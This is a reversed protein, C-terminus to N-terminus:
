SELGQEPNMVKSKLYKMETAICFMSLALLVVKFILYDRGFEAQLTPIQHVQEFTLPQIFMIDSIAFTHVWDDYARVGLSTRMEQMLADPLKGGNLFDLVKKIILVAKKGISHRHKLSDPIAAKRKKLSSYQLFHLKFGLLTAHLNFVSLEYAKRARELAAEHMGLQSSTVCLQLSTKTHYKSFKLQTLLEQIKTHQLKFNPAHFAVADM